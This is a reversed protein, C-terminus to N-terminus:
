FEIDTVNTINDVSSANSDSHANVQVSIVKTVKSTNGTVRIATTTIKNIKQIRVMVWNGIKTDPANAGFKLVNTNEIKFTYTEPSDLGVTTPRIALIGGGSVNTYDLTSLQIDINSLPEDVLYSSLEKRKPNTELISTNELMVSFHDTGNSHYKDYLTYDIEEDSLAFKTINFNGGRSLIERGRFTLLAEVTTSSKDLLGM